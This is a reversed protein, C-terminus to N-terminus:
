THASMFVVREFRYEFAFICVFYSYHFLGKMQAATESADPM